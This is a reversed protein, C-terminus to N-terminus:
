ARWQRLRLGRVGIEGGQGAQRPDSTPGTRPPVRDALLHAVAAPLADLVLGATVPGGPARAPARAPLWARSALRGALGHVAVALEAAVVPALGAALLTGAVGALVDGSGATALWHPGDDRAHVVSGPDVAAEADGAAQPDCVVTTAGKLLVTAGTLEAARGAYRAPAAEVQARDVPEGRDSLLRALEGAHPTLLTPATRRDPLLTLAGADVVCPRDGALARQVARRQDDDQEPDVGPGLVWAQVQGDGPVVEPWRARVLDTPERPGVYRVMGAGTHVAAGTCLVAAGTYTPGGAVVGLVGRRYKDDDPGPVPWCAALSAMGTRLVAPRRALASLHPGLGIDVLTVHGAAHCAPPLLLCPKLTGFTVTHSAHIHTGAAAGTDPDVGSPLDVAVVPVDPPLQAVADALGAAAARLGARGGIGLLGDVVLQATRLAQPQDAGDVPILRGGARQLAASGEAHVSEAALLAQVSAGRAALRAGAWLADGGNNGAGVLLVVRRGYVGGTTTELLEIVAAALGAAARQMLAGDPLEAM